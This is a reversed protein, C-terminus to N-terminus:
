VSGYFHVSFDDNEDDDNDDNDDDDAAAATDPFTDHNFSYGVIFSNVTIVDKIVIVIVDLSSLSTM